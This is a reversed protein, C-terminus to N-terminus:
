YKMGNEEAEYEEIQTTIKGVLIKNVLIEALYNNIEPKVEFDDFESLAFRVAQAPLKLFNKDCIYIEKKHLIETDGIDILFCHYNDDDNKDVVRVRSWCQMICVLYINGIVVTDALKKNSDNLVFLEIDTTLAEM